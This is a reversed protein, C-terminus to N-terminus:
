ALQGLRAMAQQHRKNPIYLLYPELLYGTKIVRYTCLKRTTIPDNLARHWSSRKERFQPEFSKLEERNMKELDATPIWMIGRVFSIGFSTGLFHLNVSLNCMMQYGTMYQTWSSLWQQISICTDSINQLAKSLFRITAKAMREKYLYTIQIKDNYLAKYIM